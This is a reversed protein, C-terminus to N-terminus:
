REREQQNTKHDRMGDKVTVGGPGADREEGEKGGQGGRIGETEPDRDRGKNDGQEVNRLATRPSSSPPCTFSGWALSLSLGPPAAPSWRQRVRLGTSQQAMGPM